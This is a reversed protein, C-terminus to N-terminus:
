AAVKVELLQLTIELVTSSFAKHTIESFEFFTCTGYFHKLIWLTKGSSKSVLNSPASHAWSLFWPRIAEFCLVVKIHNLAFRCARINMETNLPTKWHMHKSKRGSTISVNPLCFNTSLLLYFYKVDEGCIYHINHKEECKMWLHRRSRTGDTVHYPRWMFPTPRKESCSWGNEM